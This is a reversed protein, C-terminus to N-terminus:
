SKGREAGALTTTLQNTLHKQVDNFLLPQNIISVGVVGPSGTTSGLACLANILLLSSSNM